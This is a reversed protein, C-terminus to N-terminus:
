PILLMFLVCGSIICTDDMCVSTVSDTADNM